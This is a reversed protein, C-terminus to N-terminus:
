LVFKVQGNHTLTRLGGDSYFCSRSLHYIVMKASFGLKNETHPIFLPSTLSHLLTHTHTDPVVNQYVYTFTHRMM